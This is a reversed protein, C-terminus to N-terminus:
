VEIVPLSEYQTAVVINQNEINNEILREELTKKALDYTNNKESIHALIICKTRPGILSTLYKSAMYNSLHGKDGVVRQKLYYPYPGDMLMEEDHNSELVYINKNKMKSLNKQSLYGTDTVYVLDSDQYKIVYGVSCKTDHSTYLLEININSINFNDEIVAINELPIIPTLEERMKIPIYVPANIKKVLTALGKIHDNHSHTILVGDIEKPDIHEAVLCQKLTLYNIGMDILIKKDGCILLTSNGKSGSALVKIKM